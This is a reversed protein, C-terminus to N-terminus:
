GKKTGTFRIVVADGSHYPGESLGVTKRESIDVYFNDFLNEVEEVSYLMGADKPGGTNNNVQEKAFAEFIIRGGIKISGAAKKFITNKLEPKLHVFILGAADYYNQAPEYEELMNVTYNLEVKREEAFKLAKAKAAQSFDVADVQWGNEAAYVGNRGEGEALMLIKGPKLKDIQKKFFGNPEKGYVFNNGSYREDWFENWNKKM